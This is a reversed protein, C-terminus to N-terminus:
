LYTVPAEGSDSFLQLIPVYIVKEGQFEIRTILFFDPLYFNRIPKHLIVAVMHGFPTNCGPKGVDVRM